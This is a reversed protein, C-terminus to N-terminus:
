FTSSFSVAFPSSATSSTKKGGDPQCLAARKSAVPRLFCETLLSCIEDRCWQNEGDDRRWRKQGKRKNNDERWTQTGAQPSPYRIIARWATLKRTPTSFLLPSQARNKEEGEVCPKRERPTSTAKRFNHKKPVNGLKM